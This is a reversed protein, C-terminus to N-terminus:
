LFRSLMGIPSFVGVLLMYPLSLVQYRGNLPSIDNFAAPTGRRSKTSAGESVHRSFLNLTVGKLKAELKAFILSSIYGHIVGFSFPLEGLIRIRGKLTEM